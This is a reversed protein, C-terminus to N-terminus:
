YDLKKSKILKKVRYSFFMNPTTIEGAWQLLLEHYSNVAM